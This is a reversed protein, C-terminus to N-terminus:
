KKLIGVFYIIAMFIIIGRMDWATPFGAVQTGFVLMLTLIMTILFLVALSFRMIGSLKSLGLFGLFKGIGLVDFDIRRKLPVEAGNTEQVPDHSM